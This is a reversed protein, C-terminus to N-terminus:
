AYYRMYPSWAKRTPSQGGCAKRADRTIQGWRFDLHRSGSVAATPQMTSSIQWDLVQHPHGAVLFNSHPNYATSVCRVTSRRRAGPDTMTYAVSMNTCLNRRPWAVSYQACRSSFGHCLCVLASAISLLRSLLISCLLTSARPRRDPSAPSPITSRAFASPANNPKPSAGPRTPFLRQPKPGGRRGRGYIIGLEDRDM